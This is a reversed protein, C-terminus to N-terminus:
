RNRKGKRWDYPNIPYPDAWLGKKENRANEELQAMQENDSFYKYHWALGHELLELALDKEDYLVRGVTRGYRDTKLKEVEVQQGFVEQSVFDKAIKSFPQGREPCDIDAVRITHQQKDQDLIVITDGDKVKIVTGSQASIFLSAFLSLIFIKNKLHLAM